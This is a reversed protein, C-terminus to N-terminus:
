SNRRLLRKIGEILLRPDLSRWILVNNYRIPKIIYGTIVNTFIQTALAVIAAGVIGGLSIFILNAVTNFIAGMLNIVWLYKQKGEALIWINRISGIYSFPVYWGVIQLVLVAGMYDNGYLVGIILKPFFFFVIAQALSSFIVISYLIKINREYIKRSKGKNKGRSQLILPRMSDIIASFVFGTLGVCTIAASYYGVAADDVMFKLLVKSIQAFVVIMLDSVIYYKSRSFMEGARKFSFRLKQEGKKAYVVILGVAILAYDITYSLAFWWVQKGTALLFIKYATTVLYAVLMIISTYKSLYKAQFWYQMIELAQAVLVLSYLACVIITDREGANAVLAFSTVGIVSLFGSVTTMVMSTGLTEGEKEPYAVIERVLISTLGLQMVPVAFAALSMAYNIIGFNEPGLFRATLMSIVLSLVSQAIKCGIIWSANKVVKNKIM